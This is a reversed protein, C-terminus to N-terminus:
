VLPFGQISRAWVEQEGQSRLRERRWSRLCDHVGVVFKHTIFSSNQDSQGIRLFRVNFIQNPGAQTYSLLISVIYWLIYEYM